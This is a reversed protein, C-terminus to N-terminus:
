KKEEEAIEKEESDSEEFSRNFANKFIPKYEELDVRFYHKWM